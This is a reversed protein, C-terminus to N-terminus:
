AVGGGIAGRVGPVLDGGGGVGENYVVRRAVDQPQRDRLGQSGVRTTGFSQLEAPVPLRLPSRRSWWRHRPNGVRGSNWLPTTAVSGGPPRIRKV